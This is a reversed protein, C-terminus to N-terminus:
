IENENYNWVVMSWFHKVPHKIDIPKIPKQNNRYRLPKKEQWDEWGFIPQTLVRFKNEGEQFRMYNNSTKPSEYDEPLFSFKNM